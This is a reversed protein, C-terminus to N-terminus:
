KNNEWHGIFNSGESKNFHRGYGDIKGLLWGGEYVDGNEQVIRGYGHPFDNKFYGEYRSGDAFIMVGM